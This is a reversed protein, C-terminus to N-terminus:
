KEVIKARLNEPLKNSYYDMSGVPVYIVSLKKCHSIAEPDIEYVIGSFTISNLSECWSFAERGIKQVSAPITVNTLANCDSFAKEEITTVTNPIKIQLLSECGFFASNGITLIGDPLSVEKLAKCDFFLKNPVTKISSPLAISTLAPCGQFSNEGISKIGNAFRVNKLKQCGKFVYKGIYTVNSTIIVGTVDNCGAFAWDKIGIVDASTKFNGIFENPVKNLIGSEIIAGDSTMSFTSDEPIFSLNLRSSLLDPDVQDPAPVTKGQKPTPTTTEQKPQEQKPQEQKPTPVTQQPVAPAKPEPTVVTPTAPQPVFAPENKAVIENKVMEISIEKMSFESVEVTQSVENYGDHTLRIQHQGVLVNNLLIPSIGKYEGDLYIKTGIPKVDVSLSGAIAKPSALQFTEGSSLEIYRVISCTRHGNKRSEFNYEGPTLNVTVQGVGRKENNVWIEVKDDTTLTVPTYNATLQPAIVVTSDDFVQVKDKFPLWNPVTVLINHMGSALTDTTLPANGIKENDLFVSAGEPGSIKLWGFAPKLNVSFEKKDSEIDILTTIKHYRKASVSLEHSGITMLKTLSGDTGKVPVGDIEVSANKPEYTLVFWQSSINQKTAPPTPNAPEQQQYSSNASSSLVMVYTHGPQLSIPFRYDRLMGLKNHLLSITNLGAPVYVWIEDSRSDDVSEVGISGGDFVFGKLTTQVKILACLENYNIVIKTGEKSATNDNKNEYFESISFQQANLALQSLLLVLTFLKRM